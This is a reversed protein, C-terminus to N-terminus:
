PGAVTKVTFSARTKGVSVVATKKTGVTAGATTQLMLTQGNGITGPDTTFPGGGISYAGGAISIPVAIDIGAVTAPGSTVSEGAHGKGNTFSIKDPTTDAKRTVISFRHSAGGIIVNASVLTEYNFSSTARIRVTDGNYVTMGAVNAFPAHNISYDGGTVKITAPVELGSVTIENSIYATLIEADKVRAFVFPDPTIDAAHATVAGVAFTRSLSAQLRTNLLVSVNNGDRNVVALDPGGDGNFDGVAVSLPYSGVAPSAVLTFSAGSAGPATTNLLISVTNSNANATALDPKGDGDFDGIVIGRPNSGVAPSAALTFSASAAGSATSNLLIAVTNGSANAAALDPKGDGNFDGIVVGLPGSGVVPSAALTFSAGSAGPATDNLLISVTNGFFDATALDPRGDGNFDGVAVSAPGGGVGISDPFTFSASAAGPVTDNLLIAVNDDSFNATVLDPKGDGNFDGVAVGAPPRNFNNFNDAPAYSASAAGPATRDLVVSVTPERGNAVALDPKGDGDFDGAAVAQPSSGVGLFAALVYSASAAGPTTTNLLISVTNDANNVVALDPKGDGNVDGVAVALPASSVGPSAALAFGPTATSAPTSNLLTAVTHTRAFVDALVVALDPKGDGNLDAAVLVNPSRTSLGLDSAAYFGASNAGPATTNILISVTNDANNATALDPKGDGNFDCVVLDFPNNGVSPGTPPNFGISAAGPATTNLLISVTSDGANAVALDARGDGNFDGLAIANPLNGVSVTAATFSGSAAGPATDNRLISVTGDNRNVVALDPRGDGDFDGAAVGTAFNGVSPSAALSFSATAAGPTTTNFLISVTSDGSTVVALDPRGDGNFDGAAVSSPSSASTGLTIASPPGFSITGAGPATTNFQIVVSHTQANPSTVALDPLGDGNYDAVAVGAPQGGVVPGAVINYTASSAGPATTNLMICTSNDYNVVVLDIKGDGNFDGAAIAHPLARGDVGVLDDTETAFSPAPGVGVASALNLLFSKDATNSGALVPVSVTASSAGAPITASGSVASYDAGASASDDATAYPVVVAYGTDGSRTLTFGMSTTGTSPQEVAADAVGVSAGGAVAVLPLFLGAGFVALRASRAAARGALM